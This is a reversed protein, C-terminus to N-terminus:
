RRWARIYDIELASPFPTESNPAGPWSGGVALNATIYMGTFASNPVPVHDTIRLRRVGDIYFDLATPTWEVGFTHFGSCFNAGTYATTSSGGVPEGVGNPYAASWHNSNYVTTCQHGLNEMIDIEPPWTFPVPLLWFAPWLGRGAPLKMRAEFYGYMQNFSDHSSIMGSTYPFGGQTQRDYATLKLTGGSVIHTDDDDTYWELEDNNTRSGDAYLTAWVNRDLFNGEFEDRFTLTWAGTPGVPMPNNSVEATFTIGTVDSDTVSGSQSSPTFAYGSKSPVITYTGAPVGTFTFNGSGDATTTRNVTGSLTLLAGAGGAAPAISGSVSFTPPQATFNVGTANANNLTVNQSAPAFTFGTKQPTVTYAGNVLGSFTFV